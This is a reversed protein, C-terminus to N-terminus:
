KNLIKINNEEFKKILFDKYAINTEFKLKIEKDFNQSIVKLNFKEIIHNISSIKDYNYSIQIIDTIGKKIIKSHKITEKTAQTYAQILWWIWLKTWWFYRVIVILVNFLNESLIQQKIPYWATNTPEWDDNIQLIEDQIIYNWFLDKQVKIWFRYWWCHHTAQFHKKKVYSLNNNIDEKKQLPFIYWIFKSWKIKPIEFSSSEQITLFFIPDPM